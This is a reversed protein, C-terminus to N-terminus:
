GCPLVTMLTNDGCFLKPTADQYEGHVTWQGSEDIDGSQTAYQFYEGGAFTVTDDGLEVVLPETPSTVGDAKVKTLIAGSPKVFTLTLETNATLDFGANIVILKGIEGVKLQGM